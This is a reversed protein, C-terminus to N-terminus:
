AKKRKMTCFHYQSKPLPSHGVLEWGSAGAANLMDAITRIGLRELLIYDNYTKGNIMVYMMENKDGTGRSHLRIYLYEWQDKRIEGFLSEQTVSMDPDAAKTANQLREQDSSVKAMDLSDVKCILDGTSSKLLFSNSFLKTDMGSLQSSPIVGEALRGYKKAYLLAHEFQELRYQDEKDKQQAALDCDHQMREMERTLDNILIRDIAKGTEDSLVYFRDTHRCAEESVQNALRVRGNRLSLRLAAQFGNVQQTM